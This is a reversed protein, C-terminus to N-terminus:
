PICIGAFPVFLTDEHGKTLYIRDTTAQANVNREPYLLPHLTILLNHQSATTRWHPFFSLWPHQMWSLLQLWGRRRIEGFLLLIFSFATFYHLSTIYAADAASVDAVLITIGIPLYWIILRRNYPPDDTIRGSRRSLGHYLHPLGMHLPFRKLHWRRGAWTHHSAVHIFCAQFSRFTVHSAGPIRRYRLWDCICNNRSGMDWGHLQRERNATTWPKDDSWSTGISSNSASVTFIVGPHCPHLALRSSRSMGLTHPVCSTIVRFSRPSTILFNSLIKQLM